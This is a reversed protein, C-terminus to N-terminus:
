IARRLLFNGTYHYLESDHSETKMIGCNKIVEFTGYTDGNEKVVRDKKIQVIKPVNKLVEVTDEIHSEEPTQVSVIVELLRNFKMYIMALLENLETTNGYHSISDIIVYTFGYDNIAKEVNKLLWQIKNEEQYINPYYCICINEYHGSNNVNNKFVLEKLRQVTNDHSIYLVKGYESMAIAEEVLFKTKGYGVPSIIAKINNYSISTPMVPIDSTSNGYMSHFQIKLQKALIRDSEEAEPNNLVELMHKYMENKEKIYNETVQNFWKIHNVFNLNKEEKEM